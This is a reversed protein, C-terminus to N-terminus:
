VEGYGSAEDRSGDANSFHCFPISGRSRKRGGRSFYASQDNDQLSLVAAVSGHDVWAMLNALLVTQMFGKSLLLVIGSVTSGLVKRNRNGEHASYGYLFGFWIARIFEQSVEFDSYEKTEVIQFLWIPAKFAERIEDM